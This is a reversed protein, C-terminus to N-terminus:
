QIVDRRLDDKWELFAAIDALVRDVNGSTEGANVISVFLNDFYQPHRAFAMPDDILLWRGQQDIHVLRLRYRKPDANRLIAAASLCSIDREASRGGAIVLLNM